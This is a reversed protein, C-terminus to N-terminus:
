AAVGHTHRSRLARRTNQQLLVAEGELIALAEKLGKIEAARREKRGAYTEPVATCQKLLSSLYENVADLETQVGSRDASAEAVAKDLDASEKSKYKVDQSKATREIENDKTEQDYTNQASTETATIEALTKSFDSECVELLGIIGEGAGEAAEHAKDEKAYYERLIKLALKVGELGQELDAKESVFVDHEEKRLKNMEAQTAALEALAKQLAAVEQKLQASRASMQDIKTSLKAIEAEKDVKKVRTEALEKDCYAKHTADAEAEAELRAIMDAILGKVKAFPDDSSRIVSAIRSALLALASSHQKQALDRVLRAVEFNALDASSSLRGSQLFSVQNLGYTVTNAGGTEEAIVKKAAALAKLEEDRSKTAAEYDQAKTMCNQHLDALTATDANMDASTVKLDGGATALKGASEAIGKQAAALDAKGFKIEDEMSQKLLQFNHLNATETKRIHDLQSEAKALLDELTAIIDGSHGKYVAPDPANLDDEADESAQSSQVLATLKQGDASSLMSAQVMVALAQTVSHVNKLQLMSAGSKAMERTLIAIARNLTDVVESLEKDEATFAANEMARIETAAKLDSADVAIDGSLKEVKANLAGTLANEEEITATLAAIESKGTKIQFQLDKSRDECWESFEVYVKQAAEGEAIIKAQLDSLLQLVKTIPTSDTGWAVATCAALVLVLTAHGKM